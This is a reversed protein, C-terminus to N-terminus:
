STSLVATLITITNLLSRLATISLIKVDDFTRLLLVNSTNVNTQAFSRFGTESIFMELRICVFFFGASKVLNRALKKYASLFNWFGTCRNYKLTKLPFRHHIFVVRVRKVEHKIQSM